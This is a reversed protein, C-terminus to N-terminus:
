ATQEQGKYHERACAKHSRAGSQWVPSEELDELYREGMAIGQKCVWCTHPLRATRWKHEFTYVPEFEVQLVERGKDTLAWYIKNRFSREPGGPTEWSTLLGQEEMRALAFYMNGLSVMHQRRMRELEKSIPVGYTNSGLDAIAQLIERQENTLAM